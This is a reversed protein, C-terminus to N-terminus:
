KREEKIFQGDKFVYQGEPLSWIYGWFDFISPDPSPEGVWKVRV